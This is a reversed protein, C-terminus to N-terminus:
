WLWGGQSSSPWICIYLSKLVSNILFAGLMFDLQPWHMAFVRIQWALWLASTCNPHVQKANLGVLHDFQYLNCVALWLEKIVVLFLCKTWSQCCDIGSYSCLTIPMCGSGIYPWWAFTGKALHPWGTGFILVLAAAQTCKIWINWCANLGNESVMNYWICCHFAPWQKTPLVMGSGKTVFWKANLGGATILKEAWLYTLAASSRLKVGKLGRCSTLSSVPCLRVNQRDKECGQWNKWM